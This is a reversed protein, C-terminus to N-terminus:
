FPVSPGISGSAPPCGGPPWNEAGHMWLLATNDYRRTWGCLILLEPYRPASCKSVSTIESLRLLSSRFDCFIIVGFSTWGVCVYLMKQKWTQLPLTLLAAERSNESFYDFNWSLTEKRACLEGWTRVSREEAKFEWFCADRSTTKGVELRGANNGNQM